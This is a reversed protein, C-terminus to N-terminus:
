DIWQPAVPFPIKWHKVGSYTTDINQFFSIFEDIATNIEDTQKSRDVANALDINSQISKAWEERPPMEFFELDSFTDTSPDYTYKCWRNYIQDLIGTDDAYDYNYVTGDPLTEEYNDINENSYKNTILSIHLPHAHADILHYTFRHDKYQDPKYEDASDFFGEHTQVVNNSDISILVYKPGYYECTVTKGESTDTVFPENPITITFQKSM